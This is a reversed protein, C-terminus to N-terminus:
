KKVKVKTKKLSADNDPINSLAENIAVVKKVSPKVVAKKAVPAKVPKVAVAKIKENAEKMATSIDGVKTGVKVYGILESGSMLTLWKKTM